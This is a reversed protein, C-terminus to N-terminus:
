TQLRACPRLGSTRIEKGSVHSRCHQGNFFLVQYTTSVMDVESSAGEAHLVSCSSGKSLFWNGTQGLLRAALSLAAQGLGKRGLLMVSWLRKAPAVGPIAGGLLLM